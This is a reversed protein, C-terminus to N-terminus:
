GSRLVDWGFYYFDCFSNSNFLGHGNRVSRGTWRDFDYFLLVRKLIWMVSVMLSLMSVRVDRSSNAGDGEFLWRRMEFVIELIFRYVFGVICRGCLTILTMVLISHRSILFEVGFREIDRCGLLFCYLNDRHRVVDVLVAVFVFNCCRM